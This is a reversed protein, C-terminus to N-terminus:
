IVEPDLLTGMSTSNNKKTSKMTNGTWVEQCAMYMLMIHTM